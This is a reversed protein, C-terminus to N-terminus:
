QNPASTHRVSNVYVQIATTGTLAGALAGALAPLGFGGALGVDDQPVNVLVVDGPGIDPRGVAQIRWIDRSPPASEGDARDETGGVPDQQGQMQAAIFGTEPTLSVVEGGAPVQWFPGVLLKGERIL